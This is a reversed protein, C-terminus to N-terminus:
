YLPHESLDVCEDFDTWGTNFVDQAVKKLHDEDYFNLYSTLKPLHTMLVEVTPKESFLIITNVEHAYEYSLVWCTKVISDQKNVKNM